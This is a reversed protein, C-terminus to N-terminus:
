AAVREPSKKNNLMTIDYKPNPSIGIGENELGEKLEQILEDKLMGYDSSYCWPWVIFDVSFDGWRDARIIPAPESLVKENQNLIEGIVEKTETIDADYGVQIILDLRRKEPETINRIVDGWIKGNPIILKANDGTRISTMSLNMEEVTGTRGNVEVFHGVDYPQYLLIMFSTGYIFKSCSGYHFRRNKHGVFKGKYSVKILHNLNNSLIGVM